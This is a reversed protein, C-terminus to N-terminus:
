EEQSIYPLLQSLIFPLNANVHEGPLFISLEGDGTVIHYEPCNKREPFYELFVAFAM